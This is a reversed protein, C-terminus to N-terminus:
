QLILYLPYVTSRFDERPKCHREIKSPEGSRSNWTQSNSELRGSLVGDGREAMVEGSPDLGTVEAGVVGIGIVGVGPLESDNM